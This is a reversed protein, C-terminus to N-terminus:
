KGYRRKVNVTFTKNRVMWPYVKPKPVYGWPIGYIDDHSTVAAMAADFQSGGGPVWRGGDYHIQSMAYYASGLVSTVPGPHSPFCQAATAYGGRIAMSFLTGLEVPDTPTWSMLNLAPDLYQTIGCCDQLYQFEEWDRETYSQFLQHLSENMVLGQSGPGMAIYPSFGAYATADYAQCYQMFPVLGFHYDFQYRGYANGNTQMVYLGRKDDYDYYSEYNTWGMWCEYESVTPTNPMDDGWKCFRSNNERAWRRLGRKRRNHIAM